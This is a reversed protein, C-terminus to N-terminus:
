YRIACAQIVFPLRRTRAKPEECGSSRDRTGQYAAASLDADPPLKVCLNVPAAIVEAHNAYGAGACAVLDGKVIGKIDPSVEVVEGACSYGLPSYSDLKKM